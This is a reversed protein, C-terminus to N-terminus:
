PIPKNWWSAVMQIDFIDIDGDADIDYRAVYGEDGERTNWHAAVLQIDFIDVDGDGDIDAWFGASTEGFGTYIYASGSVNGLDDDKPSGVLAYDGSISVSRGFNDYDAGDSAMLKAQRTWSSGNRKFIFAAGGEQAVEDEEMAGIICYDDSISVSWGFFDQIDGDADTLKAQETWTEGDRKFIYASGSSSGHDDDNPAGLIAYDGSISVSLGLRDNKNRDSAQLQGQHSWNSGERKLIYAAGHSTGVSRAGVIAYDGDICVACGFNDLEPYLATSTIKAQETWNEGERKFIYAAGANNGLDDNGWAGIIAYDGSVSVSIGFEDYDQADSANLKAHETWTEGTRKYVYVSGTYPGLANDWYAGVFVYVGSISVSIGYQAWHTLDSAQLKAQETWTGGNQKFVYVAGFEQQNAYEDLVSVVAYDGDICVASGFEDDRAGDSALLKAETIQGIARSSIFLAFLVSLVIVKKM